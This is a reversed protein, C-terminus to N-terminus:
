KAFYRKINDYNNQYAIFRGKLPYNKSHLIPIVIQKENSIVYQNGCVTLFTSDTKAKYYPPNNLVGKEQPKSKEIFELDSSYVGLKQLWYNV